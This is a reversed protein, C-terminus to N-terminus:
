YLVHDNIKMTDFLSGLLKRLNSVQYASICQLMVVSVYYSM